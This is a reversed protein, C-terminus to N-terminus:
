NSNIAGPYSPTNDSIFFYLAQTGRLPPAHLLTALYHTKPCYNLETASFFLLLLSTVFLNFVGQRPHEFHTLKQM